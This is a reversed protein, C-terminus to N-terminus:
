STGRTGSLGFSVFSFPVVLRSRWEFNCYRLVPPDLTNATVGPPPMPRLRLGPRVALSSLSVGQCPGLAQSLVLAGFSAPGVDAYPQSAAVSAGLLESDGDHHCWVSGWEQSLGRNGQNFQPIRRRRRRRGMLMM